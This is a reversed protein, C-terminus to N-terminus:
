STVTDFNQDSHTPQCAQIDYMMEGGADSCLSLNRQTLKDQKRRCLL